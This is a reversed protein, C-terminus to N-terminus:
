HMNSASKYFYTGTIYLTLNHLPNRILARTKQKHNRASYLVFFPQM